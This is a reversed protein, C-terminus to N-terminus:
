ASSASRPRSPPIAKTRAINKRSRRSPCATASCSATHAALFLGAGRDGGAGGAGRDAGQVASPEHRGGRQRHVPQAHAELIGREPWLQTWIAVGVIAIKVLGKVLNILGDLGFMRKFGAMPSVKSFDPKIKDLTFSPRSQLLHGALGAAIM